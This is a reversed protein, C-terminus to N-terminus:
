QGAGIYNVGINKRLLDVVHTQPNYHFAQVHGDVMLVNASTNDLHRFRINGWNNQTDANWDGPGGDPSLGNNPTMDVPASGGGADAPLVDIAYDDTIMYSNKNGLRAGDLAFTDATADWSGSRAYMTADFILAMEASRKIQGLKYGSLYTSLHSGGYYYAFLDTTSLNPMIRPHVSYDVILANTATTQM